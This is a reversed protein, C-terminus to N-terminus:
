FSTSTSVGEENHNFYDMYPVMVIRDDHLNPLKQDPFEYYFSRTNVVFWYYTYQEIDANPIAKSVLAWDRNLKEKQRSLISSRDPRNTKQMQEHIWRGGITIPFPLSNGAGKETGEMLSRGHVPWLLPTSTQFDKMSPWSAKWPDYQKLEDGGFALFAAIIGNVSAKGISKRFPRPVSGISLLASSPM